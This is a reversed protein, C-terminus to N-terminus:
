DGCDRDSGFDHNDGNDHYGDDEHNDGDDHYAYDEHNGGHHNDGEVHYDSDNRYIAM